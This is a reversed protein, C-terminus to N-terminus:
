KKQLIIFTLDIFMIVAGISAAIWYRWNHFNQPIAEYAIKGLGGLLVTLIIIFFM